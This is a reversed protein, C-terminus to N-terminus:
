SKVMSSLSWREMMVWISGWATQNKCGGDSPIKVLSHTCRGKASVKKLLVLGKWISSLQRWSQLGLECENFELKSIWQVVAGYTNCIRIGWTWILSGCCHFSRLVLRSFSLDILLLDRWFVWRWKNFCPAGEDIINMNRILHILLGGMQVNRWRILFSGWVVVIVKM